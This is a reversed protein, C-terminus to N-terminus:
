GGSKSLRNFIGPKGEVDTPNVIGKVDWKRQRFVSTGGRRFNSRSGGVGCGLFVDRKASSKSEIQVFALKTEPWGYKKGLGLSKATEKLPRGSRAINGHVVCRGKDEGSKEVFNKGRTV